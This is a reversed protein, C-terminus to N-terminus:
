STLPPLALSAEDSGCGSRAGAHGGRSRRLGEPTLHECPGRDRHWLPQPGSAQSTIRARSPQEGHSDEVRGAGGDKIRQVETDRANGRKGGRCARLARTGATERAAARGGAPPGAGGAGGAAGCCRQATGLWRGRRRRRCRPSSGASGGELSSSRQPGFSVQKMKKLCTCRTRM